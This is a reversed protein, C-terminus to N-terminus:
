YHFRHRVAGTRLDLAYLSRAGVVVSSGAALLEDTCSGDITQRWLTKGSATDYCVVTGANNAIVVRSGAVLATSNAQHDGRGSTRRRWLRKGTAPDLCHFDGTRDGIFVRGRGLAPESYVWEGDEARPTFTWRVEGTDPSLSYLTRDSKALLQDDALVVSSGGLGDLSTRWILKGSVRDVACVSGPAFISAYVRNGSVLPNPRTTQPPLLAHEVDRLKLTWIPKGSTAARARAM